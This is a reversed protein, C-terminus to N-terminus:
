FSPVGTCTFSIIESLLMSTSKISVEDGLVDQVNVPIPKRICSVDDSNGSPHDTVVTVDHLDPDLPQQGSRVIWLLTLIM